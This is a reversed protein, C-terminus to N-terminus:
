DAQGDEEVNTVVAVGPVGTLGSVTSSLQLMKSKICRGITKRIGEKVFIVTSYM